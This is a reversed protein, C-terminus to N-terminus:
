NGIRRWEGTCTQTYLDEGVLINLHATYSARSRSSVAANAVIYIGVVEFDDAVFIEREFNMYDGRIIGAYVETGNETTSEMVLHNGYQRIRATDNDNEELIQQIWAPMDGSCRKGHVQWRGAVDAPVVFADLDQRLARLEELIETTGTDHSFANQASMVALVLLMICLTCQPM